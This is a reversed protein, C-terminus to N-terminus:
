IALFVYSTIGLIGIGIIKAKNLLSQHGWYYLTSAKKRSFFTMINHGLRMCASVTIRLFILLGVFEIVSLIYFGIIQTLHHSTHFFYRILHELWAGIYNTAVFIIEVFVDLLDDSLELILSFAEEPMALITMIIIIMLGTVFLHQKKRKNIYSNLLESDEATLNVFRAGILVPYQDKEYPNSPKSYVVKCCTMILTMSSLLLIRIMLYDGPKLEDKCTFAIGSASINVNLTDNEQSQSAPLAQDISASNATQSALIDDFGPQVQIGQKPEIKHYFLNVQDYVRFAIRRNIKKNNKIIM